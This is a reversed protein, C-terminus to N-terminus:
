SSGGQRSLSLKRRAALGGSVLVLLGGALFWLWATGADGTEPLLPLYPTWDLTVVVVVVDGAAQPLYFAQSTGLVVSGGQQDTVVWRFPGQGFHEATVGWVKRGWSDFLEDFPGRWDAADHWNGSGDQWQVVTWLAALQSGTLPPDQGFQAHLEIAATGPPPMPTPTPTLTPRPPLDLDSATTRSPEGASAGIGLIILFIGTALILIGILRKGEM